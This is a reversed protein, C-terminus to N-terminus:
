LTAKCTRSQILCNLDIMLCDEAISLDGIRTHM